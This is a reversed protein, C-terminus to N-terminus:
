GTTLRRIQLDIVAAPLVFHSSIEDVQDLYIEHEEADTSPFRGVYPRLEDLPALLEAAFRDARAESESLGAFGPRAQADDGDFLLHALAHAIAFRQEPGSLSRAYIIVPGDARRSVIEDVGAPLKGGTVLAGPFCSEVIQRTSYAPETQGARRRLDAAIEVLTSLHMLPAYLAPSVIRANLGPTFRCRRSASQSRAEVRGLEISFSM